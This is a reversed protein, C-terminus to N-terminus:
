SNEFLPDNGKSDRAVDDAIPILNVTKISREVEYFTIYYNKENIVIPINGGEIDYDLYYKTNIYTYFENADKPDEFVYVHQKPLQKKFKKGKYVKGGDINPVIQLPICSFTSLGFLIFGIIKTIPVSFNM